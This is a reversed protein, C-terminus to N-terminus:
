VRVLAKGTNEGRFLGIFARPTSELGEYVTEECRLRGEKLWLAMQKRGEAFRSAWRTVIFGEVRLQKVLIETFPRRGVDQSRDNYQSIQGCVSVRGRFNMLAMAADTLEGGANDFYCDIGNPCVRRLSEKYPLETRYNLAADFGLSRIYEAKADTGVTGVARCGLIKAIQGVASGVAGAAGSVLVTEGAKPACLEILGFYATMGTGGLLGLATQIPAEHPDVLRVRAADVAAYDQWGWMGAVFDGKKFHPTQSEVVQGTAASEMLSGTLIPDVYTRVGSIRGRLYPDVSIWLSRVLVGNTPCAPIAEEELLFDSEQPMGEPVRALLFRRNRDPLTM